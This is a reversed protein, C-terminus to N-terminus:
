LPPRGMLRPAAAHEEKSEHATSDESQVAEKMCHEGARAGQGELPFRHTEKSSYKQTHKQTEQRDTKRHVCM